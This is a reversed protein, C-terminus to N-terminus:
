FEEPRVFNILRLMENRLMDKEIEMKNNKEYNMNIYILLGWCEILLLILFLITSHGLIQASKIYLDNNDTIIDKSFNRKISPDFTRHAAFNRIEKNINKFYLLLKNVVMEENNEVYNKAFKKIIETTSANKSFYENQHKIVGNSIDYLGLFLGWLYRSVEYYGLIEFIGYYYDLELTDEFSEFFKQLGQTAKDIKEKLENFSNFKEKSFVELTKWLGFISTFRISPVVVGRIGYISSIFKRIILIAHESNKLICKECLNLFELIFDKIIVKAYIFYPIESNDLFYQINELIYRCSPLLFEYNVKGEENFLEKIVEGFKKSKILEKYKEKYDTKIENFIKRFQYSNM